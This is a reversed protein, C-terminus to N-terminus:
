SRDMLTGVVVIAEVDCQRAQEVAKALAERSWRRLANGWASGLGPWGRDLHVGTVVMIRSM